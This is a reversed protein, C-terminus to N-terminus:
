FCDNKVVHRIMHQNSDFECCSEYWQHISITSLDKQLHCMLQTERLEGKPVFDGSFWGIRHGSVCIRPLPRPLHHQAPRANTLRTGSRGAEELSCRNRSNTSNVSEPTCTPIWATPICRRPLKIHDIHSFQIIRRLHRASEESITRQRGGGDGIGVCLRSPSHIPEFQRSKSVHICTLPDINEDYGVHGFSETRDFGDQAVQILVHDPRLRAAFRQFKQQFILEGRYNKVGVHRVHIAYFGCGANAPPPATLMRRENQDRPGIVVFAVDIASRQTPDIAQGARGVWLSQQRSDAHKDIQVM